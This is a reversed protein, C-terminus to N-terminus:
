LAAPQVTSVHYVASAPRWTHQSHLRQGTLPAMCAAALPVHMLAPCVILCGSDWCFPQPQSSMHRRSCSGRGPALTACCGAPAPVPAPCGGIKQPTSATVWRTQWVRRRCLMSCRVFGGNKSHTPLSGNQRGSRRRCPMNSWAASHCGHQQPLSPRLNFASSDSSHGRPKAGLCSKSSCIQPPLRCGAAGTGLSSCCGALPLLLPLAAAASCGM